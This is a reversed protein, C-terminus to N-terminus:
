VRDVFCARATDWIRTDWHSDALKFWEEGDQIFFEYHGRCEPHGRCSKGKGGPAGMKEKLMSGVATPEGSNISGTSDPHFVIPKKGEYRLECAIPERKDKFFSGAPRFHLPHGTPLNLEKVFSRWNFRRTVSSSGGSSEDASAYDAALEELASPAPAAEEPFFLHRGSQQRHQLVLQREEPTLVMIDAM